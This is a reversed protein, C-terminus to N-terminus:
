LKSLNFSSNRDKMAKEASRDKHRLFKGKGEKLIIQTSSRAVSDETGWAWDM